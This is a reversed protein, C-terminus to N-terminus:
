TPELINRSSVDPRIPPRKPFFRKIQALVKSESKSCFDGVTYELRLTLCFHSLFEYQTIAKYYNLM